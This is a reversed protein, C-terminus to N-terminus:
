RGILQLQDDSLSHDPQLLLVAAPNGRFKKSTFADYVTYPLQTPSMSFFTPSPGISIGFIFRTM